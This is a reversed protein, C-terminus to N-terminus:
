KNSNKTNGRNRHRDRFLAHFPTHLLLLDFYETISKAIQIPDGSSEIYEYVPPNDDDNDTLFYRFEVDHHNFFVFADDPLTEGDGWRKMNYIIDEKFIKINHCRGIGSWANLGGDGLVELYQRFIKPLRKVNQSDMMAKIEEKTCGKCVADKTRQEKIMRQKLQKGFHESM